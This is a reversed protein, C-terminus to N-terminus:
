ACTITNRGLNKSRYLVDDVRQLMESVTEGPNVCGIGGSITLKEVAPYSHQEVITRFEEALKKASVLDKDKIIVLFEEGGWRGVIHKKSFFSQLQQSFTKLVEDGVQHGFRDNISKFLDIDILLLCYKHQNKIFFNHCQEISQEIKLRNYIQTLPDTTSLVELQQNREILEEQAILLEKTRKQVADELFDNSARLRQNIKDFKKVLVVSFVISLTILMAAILTVKEMLVNVQKGALHIANSIEKEQYVSFENIKNNFNKLGELAGSFLMEKAMVEHGNVAKQAIENQLPGVDGALAILSKLREEELTNGDILLKLNDRHVTYVRENKYFSMLFEDKVFEDDSLLMTELAVLRNMGSMNMKMLHHQKQNQTQVIESAEELSSSITNQAIFVLGGVLFLTLLFALLIISNISLVLKVKRM